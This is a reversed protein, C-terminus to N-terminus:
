PITADSRIDDKAEDGIDTLFSRVQKTIQAGVEILEQTRRSITLLELVLDLSNGKIQAEYVLGQIRELNSPVRSM